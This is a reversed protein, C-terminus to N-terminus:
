NVRRLWLSGPPYEDQAVPRYDAFRKEFLSEDHHRVLATSLVVEFSTNFALFAQVLMAENWYIPWREGFLWTSAPFPINYPFPMDHIHIIVGPKVRPLVELFLYAVDSDIKLAHSSDIFLVDGAELIEFDELPVDQVFMQKLKIGELRQLAEFPYPEICTIELPSGEAANRKGALQAYFTSLGSGIELYRAPKHERLMYYQLRADLQPFGPGFGQGQNRTYDGAGAVYDQEWKDALELVTRGMAAADYTMGVLESPRDWRARTKELESIVPLVSYYDGAQAANLGVMRLLALILRVRGRRIRFVIRDLLGVVGSPLVRLAVERKSPPRMAPAATSETTV